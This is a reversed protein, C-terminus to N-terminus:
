QDPCRHVEPWQDPCRHAGCTMPRSVQADRSMPRSVQACRTMPRSVQAGRAMPRSVQAGRTMPRSVQAGSTMPRSVQAARTMPRSMQAGRTMPRSMQAGRTMPRSVQAGRTMPRSVQAGSTMPRSVQAGRALGAGAVVSRTQSDTTMPGTQWVPTAANPPGARTVTSVVDCTVPQQSSCTVVIISDPSQRPTFFQQPSSNLCNSSLQQFNHRTKRYDTMQSDETKYQADQLQPPSLHSKCSPPRPLSPLVHHSVSITPLDSPLSPPLLPPGRSHSSYISTVGDKGRTKIISSRPGPIGQRQSGCIPLRKFRQRTRTM